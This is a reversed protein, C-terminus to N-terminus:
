RVVPLKASASRDCKDAAIALDDVFRDFPVDNNQLEYPLLPIQLEHIWGPRDALGKAALAFARSGPVRKLFVLYEMSAELETGGGNRIMTTQGDVHLAGGSTLIEIDNRTEVAPHIWRRVRFAHETYLWTGRNNIRVALSVPTGVVVADYACAKQQLASAYPLPDGTVAFGCVFQIMGRGLQLVSSGEHDYIAAKAREEPTKPLFETMWEPLRQRESRDVQAPAQGAGRLGVSFFLAAALFVTPPPKM